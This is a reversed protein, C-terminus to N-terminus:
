QRLINTSHPGPLLFMNHNKYTTETYDQDKRFYFYLQKGCM